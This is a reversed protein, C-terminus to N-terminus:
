SPSSTHEKVAEPKSSTCGLKSGTDCSWISQPDRYLEPARKTSQSQTHTQQPLFLYSQARTHSRKPSSAPPGGPNRAEVRSAPDNGGHQYCTSCGVVWRSLCMGPAQTGPQRRGEGRRACRCEPPPLAWALGTAATVSHPAAPACCRSMFGRRQSNCGAM